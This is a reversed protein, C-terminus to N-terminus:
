ITSSNPACRSCQGALALLTTAWFGLMWRVLETRQDALATRQDALATRLDAIRRELRADFRAFNLENLDRLETRYTVDVANFWDVLENAIDDGLVEYFRQPLEATM